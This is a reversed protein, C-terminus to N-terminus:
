QALRSDVQEKEGLFIYLEHAQRFHLTSDVTSQSGKGGTTIMTPSKFNEPLTRITKLTQLANDFSSYGLSKKKMMEAYALVIADKVEYSFDKPLALKRSHPSTFKPDASWYDLTKETLERISIDGLFGGEKAQSLKRVIQRADGDAYNLCNPVNFDDHNINSMPIPTLSYLLVVDNEEDQKEIASFLVGLNQWSSSQAGINGSFVSQSFVLMLGTLILCFNANM